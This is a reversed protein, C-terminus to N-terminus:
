AVVMNAHKICTFVFRWVTTHPHQQGDQLRLSSDMHVPKLQPAKQGTKTGEHWDYLVSHGQKHVHQKNLETPTRVGQLERWHIWLM